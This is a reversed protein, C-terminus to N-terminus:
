IWSGDDYDELEALTCGYEEIQRMEDETVEQVYTRPGVKVAGEPLPEGIFLERTVINM